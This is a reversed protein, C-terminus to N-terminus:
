RFAFQTEFFPTMRTSGCSRREIFVTPLKINSIPLQPENIRRMLQEVAFSGILTTPQDAVTFFPFIANTHTFDDFTVLAVDQPIRLRLETCAQVVGNAIEANVTVIAHPRQPQQLIKIAVHYGPPTHTAVDEYVLTADFAIGAIDLAQRYGHLRERSTSIFQHSNILAIRRHGLGILHQMLSLMGQINDSQVTDVAIGPIERDILVLPYGHYVFEQLYTASNDCSAALIIGDVNRQMLSQIYHKEYASDGYSNCVIVLCGYRSATMEVGVSIRAFFQDGLNPVIFGITQSKPSTHYQRPPKPRYNLEDIANLIRTRTDPHVSISGNIVRSVTMASVQALKAVDRITAEHNNIPSPM